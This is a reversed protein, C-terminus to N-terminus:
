FVQPSLPYTAPEVCPILFSVRSLASTCALFRCGSDSSFGDVLEKFARIEVLSATTM